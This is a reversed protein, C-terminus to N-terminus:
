TITAEIDKGLRQIREVTTQLDNAIAKLRRPFENSQVRAYNIGTLEDPIQANNLATVLIKVYRNSLAYGAELQQGWSSLSSDTCIYLLADSKRRICVAIERFLPAGLTNHQEYLWPKHGYQDLINAAQRAKYLGDRGPYSIFVRLIQIGPVSKPM